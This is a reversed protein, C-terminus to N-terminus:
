EVLGTFQDEWRPGWIDEDDERLWTQREEPDKKHAGSGAHPMMGVGNVGGPEGRAGAGLSLGPRPVRPGVPGASPPATWWRDGTAPVGGGTWSGTGPLGRVESSGSGGSGGLGPRASLDTEPLDGTGALNSGPSGAQASDEPPGLVQHPPLTHPLASTSTPVTGGIPPPLAGTSPGAADVAGGGAPPATAPPSPHPGPAPQSEWKLEARGPVSSHAASYDNLLREEASTATRQHSTYWRAVEQFYKGNPDARFDRTVTDTNKNNDYDPDPNAQHYQGDEGRVRAGAIIEDYAKRQFAFDAYASRDQDYDDYLGGGSTDSGGAPLSPGGGGFLPVPIAGITDHVSKSCSDLLTPMEGYNNHVALMNAGIDKFAAQCANAADGHWDSLFMQWIAVISDKHTGVGDVYSKWLKAMDALVDSRAALTVRRVPREWTAGGDTGSEASVAIKM